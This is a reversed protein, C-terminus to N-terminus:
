AAREVPAARTRPSPRISGVRIGPVATRLMTAARLAAIRGTVNARRDTPLEAARQTVEIPARSDGLLIIEFWVERQIRGDEDLRPAWGNADSYTQVILLGRGGAADVDEDTRVTPITGGRCPDTVTVRLVGRNRDVAAEVHLTETDSERGVGYRLANTVLESACLRVAEGQERTLPLGALALDAALKNRTAGVSACRAPIEIKSIVTHM